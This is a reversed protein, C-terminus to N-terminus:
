NLAKAGLKARLARERSSFPTRIGVRSKRSDVGGRGIHTHTIRPAMLPAAQKGLRNRDRSSSVSRCQNSNSSSKKRSDVWWAWHSHSHNEAGVFSRGAKRFWKSEKFQSGIPIAESVFSRCDEASAARTRRGTSHARVIPTRGRLGRTHMPRDEPVFWAAPGM